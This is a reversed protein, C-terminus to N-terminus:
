AAAKHLRDKVREQFLQFDEPHEVFWRPCDKWGVINHHTTIDLETLNFRECLHVCLDEAADLTEETHFGEPNIHCLEIGLTYYNPSGSSSVAWDGFKYRSYDTYSKSGVHYAIESVPICQIIAGELGIAFHASGYGYKGNGRLEFWDRVAEADQGSNAVWHLVIAKVQLISRGPRSYENPTLLLEKIQM